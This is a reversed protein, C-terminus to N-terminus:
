KGSARFFVRWIIELGVIRQHPLANMLPSVLVCMFYRLLAAFGIKNLTLGHLLQAM